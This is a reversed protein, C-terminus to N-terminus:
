VFHESPKPFIFISSPPVGVEIVIGKSLWPQEVDEEEFGDSKALNRYVARSVLFLWSAHLYEHRELLRWLQEPVDM